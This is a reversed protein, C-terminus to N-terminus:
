DVVDEGQNDDLHSFCMYSLLCKLTKRRGQVVAGSPGAIDNEEEIDSLLGGEAGSDHAVVIYDRESVRKLVKHPGSYCAHLTSGPIPSLVLVENGPSFACPKACKDFWPKKKFQSAFINTKALECARHLRFCFM